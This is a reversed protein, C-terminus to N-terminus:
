ADGKLFEDLAGTFPSAEQVSGELLLNIRMAGGLLLKHAPGALAIRMGPPIVHDDLATPSSESLAVLLWTEGELTLQCHRRSVSLHERFSDPAVDGNRGLAVTSKM